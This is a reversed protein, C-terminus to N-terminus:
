GAVDLVEGTSEHLAIQLLQIAGAGLVVVQTSHKQDQGLVMDLIKSASIQRVKPDVANDPSLLDIHVQAAAESAQELMQKARGVGTALQDNTKKEISERRRALESQFIASKTILSIAQPTMDLAQAIEKPGYGTLCLDIIQFHRPMMRQLENPAQSM